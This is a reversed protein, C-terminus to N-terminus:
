ARLRQRSRFPVSGHAHTSQSQEALSSALSSLRPSGNEFRNGEVFLVDHSGERPEADPGTSVGEMRGTPCTETKLTSTKYERRTM